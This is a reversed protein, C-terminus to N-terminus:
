SKWGAEVRETVIGDAIFGSDWLKFKVGPAVAKTFGEPWIVRCDADFEDGETFVAEKKEIWLGVTHLGEVGDMNLPLRRHGNTDFGFKRPRNPGREEFTLRIHAKFQPPLPIM